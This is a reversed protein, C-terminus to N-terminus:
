KSFPKGATGQANSLNTKLEEKQTKLNRLLYSLDFEEFDEFGHFIHDEIKLDPYFSLCKVIRRTLM